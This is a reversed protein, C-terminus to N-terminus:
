CGGGQRRRGSPGSPVPWEDRRGWGACGLLRISPGATLADGPQARKALEPLLSALPAEFFPLSVLDDDHWGDLQSGFDNRLFSGGTSPQQQVAPTRSALLLDGLRRPPGRAAKVLARQAPSDSAARCAKIFLAEKSTVAELLDLSARECRRRWWAVGAGGLGSRRAREARAGGLEARLLRRKDDNADKILGKRNQNPSSSGTDIDGDPLFADGEKGAASLSRAARRSAEGIACADYLVEFSASAEETSKADFDRKWSTSSRTSSESAQRLVALARM